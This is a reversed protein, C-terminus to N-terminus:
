RRLHKYGREKDKRLGQGKLRRLGRLRKYGKERKVCQKKKLTFDIKKLPEEV